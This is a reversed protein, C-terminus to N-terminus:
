PCLCTQNGPAYGYREILVDKLIREQGDNIKIEYPGGAKPTSVKLSWNGNKDSSTNYQKNNWSTTVEISKQSNSKGWIKVNSQQQLVM